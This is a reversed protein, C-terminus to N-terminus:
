FVWGTRCSSAYVCLSVMEGNPLLATKNQYTGCEYQPPSNLCSVCERAGAGIALFNGCAKVTQNNIHQSMGHSVLTFPTSAEPLLRIKGSVCQYMEGHYCAKDCPLTALGLTVPCLTSNSYCTYESPYYPAEGCSKLDEALAPSLVATLSLIALTLRGAM